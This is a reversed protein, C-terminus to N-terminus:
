RANEDASRSALFHHAARARCDLGSARGRKGLQLIPLMNVSCKTTIADFQAPTYYNSREVLFYSVRGAGKESTLAGLDAQFQSQPLATLARTQKCSVRTRRVDALSPDLPEDHTFSGPASRARVPHPRLFDRFASAGGTYATQQSPSPYLSSATSTTLANAGSVFDAFSSPVNAEADSGEHSQPIDTEDPELPRLEDEPTEFPKQASSAPLSADLITNGQQYLEDDDADADQRKLSDRVTGLTATWVRRRDNKPAHLCREIVKIAGSDRSLFRQERHASQFIRSSVLAEQAMPSVKSGSAIPRQMTYESERASGLSRFCCLTFPVLSPSSFPAM